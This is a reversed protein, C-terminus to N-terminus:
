VDRERERGNERERMYIRTHLFCKRRQVYWRHVQWLYRHNATLAAAFAADQLADYTRGEFLTVYKTQFILKSMFAWFSGELMCRIYATLAAAFAAYSFMYNVENWFLGIKHMLLRTNQVSPGCLARYPTAETLLISWIVPRKQLIARYFLRYEALSVKFKWFGVSWLWGIVM